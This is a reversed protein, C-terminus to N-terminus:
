QQNSLRRQILRSFLVVQFGVWQLLARTESTDMLKDRNKRGYHTGRHGLESLRCEGFISEGYPVDINLEDLRYSAVVGARGMFDIRNLSAMKGKRALSGDSVFLRLTGSNRSNRSFQIIEGDKGDVRPLTRPIRRVWPREFGPKQPISRPKLWGIAVAGNHILSVRLARLPRQAQPHNRLREWLDEVDIRKGIGRPRIGRVVSFGRDGTVVAKRLGAMEALPDIGAFRLADHPDMPRNRYGWAYGYFHSPEFGFVNLRSQAYAILHSSEFMQRMYFKGGIGYGGYYGLREDSQSLKGWPKFSTEIDELTMGVFDVCEFVSPDRVRGDTFRLFVREPRPALGGALVADAANKLWEALGQEHTTFERGILDLFGDDIVNKQPRIRLDTM